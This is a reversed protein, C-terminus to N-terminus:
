MYLQEGKVVIICLSEVDCEIYLVCYVYVITRYIGTLKLLSNYVHIMIASDLTFVLQEGRM